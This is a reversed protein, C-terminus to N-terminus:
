AIILVFVIRNILEEELRRKLAAIRALMATLAFAVAVRAPFCIFNFL